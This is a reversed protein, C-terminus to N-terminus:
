IIATSSCIFDTLNRLGNFSAVNRAIYFPFGNKLNTIPPLQIQRQQQMYQILEVRSVFSDFLM